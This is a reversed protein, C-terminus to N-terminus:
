SNTRRIKAFATDRTMSTDNDCLLSFGFGDTTDVRMYDFAEVVRDRVEEPTEFIPITSSFDRFITWARSSQLCCSPSLNLPRGPGLELIRDLPSVALTKSNSSREGKMRNLALPKAAWKSDVENALCYEHKLRQISQLSRHEAALAVTGSSMMTAV